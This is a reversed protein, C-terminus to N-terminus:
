HKTLRATSDRLRRALVRIIERAVQPKREMIEDLDGRAIRLLTTPEGCVATASRPEGDLAALEGFVEPPRLTAIPAGGDLVIVCGAVLLYIEQSPDGKAFVTQDAGLALETAASAIQM